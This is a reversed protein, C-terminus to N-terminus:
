GRPAQREDQAAAIAAEVAQFAAEPGVRAVLYQIQTDVGENNVDSAEMSILDIDEQRAQTPVSLEAASHM